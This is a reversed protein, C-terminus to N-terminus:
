QRSSRPPSAPGGITPTSGCRTDAQARGAPRRRRRGRDRGPCGLPRRPVHGRPSVWERWAKEDYQQERELTSGFVGPSEALAALRVAEASGLRGRRGAQHCAREPETSVLAASGPAVRAEARLRPRAPRRLRHVPIVVVPHQAHRVVQDATSGFRLGMFGGAGRSGIVLLEAHAAAELLRRGAPGHIVHLHVDVEPGLGLRDIDHRLRELVAAEFDTMPPVYGGTATAPRPASSLSWARVIHLPTGLRAAVGAAWRVAVESAKSGDQGVLLGDTIELTTAVKIM